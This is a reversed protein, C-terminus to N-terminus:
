NIQQSSSSQTWSLITTSGNALTYTNGVTLENSYILFTAYNYTNTFTKSFNDGTLTYTGAQFPYSTVARHGPGPGGGPGDPNWGGSNGTTGYYAYLVDSGKTPTKEMGNFAIFTGGSIVATGDVDLGTSMRGSSGYGGRSVILGGTQTFNGNSDIGDTDGSAMSVDLFGGSVLVSPTENIKKSANVGDDTGYIHTEGGAIKIHTAEIGETAGTINIKGGSIDLTNDAHLGDDGAAIGITGGTISINGQGFGTVVTSDDEDYLNGYNAHISDDTSAINITGGTVTVIDDAKLGKSSKQSDYNSKYTSNKGTKITLNTPVTSDLESIEIDYSADIGDQPADVLLTGGSIFINGKQNGKSSLDNKDTKLGNGTKSVATINGSTIEISSKGKIANNNAVVYLTEKQITLDKTTHIGNNYTGEIVLTGAGKLKLDCKASIAGEGQTDLDSTKASRTDTISNSTNKKASIEVKDANIVKIPSDLGYTISFGNLELEVVDNDGANIIIQGELTGKLTYSGAKTITYLSGEKSYEGDETTLTFDGTVNVDPKEGTDPIVVDDIQGGGDVNGSPDPIIINSEKPTCGVIGLIALISLSFLLKTKKM